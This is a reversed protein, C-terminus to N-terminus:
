HPDEPVLTAKRLSANPDGLRDHHRGLLEYITRLDRLVEIQHQRFASLQVEYIGIKTEAHLLRQQMKKLVELTLKEDVDSM